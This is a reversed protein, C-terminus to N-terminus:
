PTNQGHGDRVWVGLTGVHYTHFDEVEFNYVTRRLYTDIEFASENYTDAVIAASVKVGGDRLDITPGSLKHADHTWGVDPVDTELVRLVRLVVGVSGDALQLEQNPRLESARKWGKENVWVPHAATLVLSNCTVSGSQYYELLWVEQDERSMTGVVRKYGREGQGDSQSLVLDGVKIREIPVLGDKTYVPTGAVFGARESTVTRVDKLVM